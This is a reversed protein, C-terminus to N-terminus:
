DDDHRKKKVPIVKLWGRGEFAMGGITGKIMGETDSEDFGAARIEFRCVLDPYGNRDVDKGDKGNKGDDDNDSGDDDDDDHKGHKGCSGSTGAGDVPGFTISDRDAKLADFDSSSLLAVRIKRKSQPNIKAIKKAGPKIDIGIQLVPPAVVEIILKYSGNSTSRPVYPTTSGGTLFVRMTRDPYTADSTVGVTYIGSVPLNVKEIRPDLTSISEPSDVEDVGVNNRQRLVTGDPAFIAILSDLSRSGGSKMGNDIDVTVTAGARGHFSYFDIDPVPTGLSMIGIIGEVEIKGSDGIVLRQATSISDNRPDESELVAFAVNSAGSALFFATAVAYRLYNKIM